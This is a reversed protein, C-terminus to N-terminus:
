PMIYMFLVNILLIYVYKDSLWHVKSPDPKFEPISDASFHICPLSFFTKEKMKKQKAMFHLFLLLTMFLSTTVFFIEVMEACM